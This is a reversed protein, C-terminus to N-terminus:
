VEVETIDCGVASLRRKAEPMDNFKLEHELVLHSLLDDKTYKKVCIPCNYLVAKNVSKNTTKNEELKM